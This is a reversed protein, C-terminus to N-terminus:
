RARGQYSGSLAKMKRKAAPSAAHLFPDKAYSDTFDSPSTRLVRTYCIGDARGRAPKWAPVAGRQAALARRRRTVVRETNVGVNLRRTSAERARRVLPHEQSEEVVKEDPLQEHFARLIWDPTRPRESWGGRIVLQSCATLWNALVPRPKALEVAAAAEIAALWAVHGRNAFGAKRAQRCQERVAKTMPPPPPPRKELTADVMRRRHYAEAWLFVTLTTDGAAEFFAENGDFYLSRFAERDLAPVPDFKDLARQGDHPGRWTSEHKSGDDGRRIIMKVVHELAEADPMLGCCHALSDRMSQFSVSTGDGLADFFVDCTRLEEADVFETDVRDIRRGREGLWKRVAKARTRRHSLVRASKPCAITDVVRPRVSTAKHFGYENRDEGTTYLAVTRGPLQAPCTEQVRNRLAYSLGSTPRAHPQAAVRPAIVSMRRKINDTPLPVTHSGVRTAGM